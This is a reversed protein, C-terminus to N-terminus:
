KIQPPNEQGLNSLLPGFSGDGPDKSILITKEYKMSDKKM